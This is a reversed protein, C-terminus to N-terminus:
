ELLIKVSSNHVDIIDGSFVSGKEMNALMSSSVARTVPVNGASNVANGIRNGNVSNSQGQLGVNRVEM